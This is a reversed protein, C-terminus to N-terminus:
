LNDDRCNRMPDSGCIECYTNHPHKTPHQDKFDM